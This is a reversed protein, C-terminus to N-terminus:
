APSGEPSVIAGRCPLPGSPKAYTGTVAKRMADTLIVPAARLLEAVRLHPAPFLGDTEPM